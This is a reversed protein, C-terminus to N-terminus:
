QRVLRVLTATDFVDSPYYVTEYDKIVITAKKPKTGIGGLVQKAKDPNNFCFWVTREDGVFRPLKRSSAEDVYFCPIGIEDGPQGPNYTGSLTVEGRFRTKGYFHNNPMPNVEVSVVELGLIRDGRKVKRPDFRNRANTQPKGSLAVTSEKPTVPIESANGKPSACGNILGTSVLCVLSLVAIPIPYRPM